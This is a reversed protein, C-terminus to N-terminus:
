RFKALTSNTANALRLAHGGFYPPPYYVVAFARCRLLHTLIPAGPPCVIKFYYHLIGFIGILYFSVMM